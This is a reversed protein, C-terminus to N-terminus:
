QDDLDQDQRVLAERKRAAQYMEAYTKTEIVIVGGTVDGYRAPLGGTYVSVSSIASPPINPVGGSVKIGDIFSVTNETRAGRFYLGEGNASPTVGAFSKGIFQIPDKRNADKEFEAALLSMRSPDDVTILKREYAIIEVETLEGFNMRVDKIYTARDPTVEVGPVEVLKYGTYSISVGYLGTPLPKLVFRGDMDAVSGVTEGAVKTYVNALPLPDGNPDFVQGRIEGLNQAQVAWHALMAILLLSTTYRM